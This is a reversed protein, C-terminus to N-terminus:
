AGVAPLTVCVRLGSADSQGLEINGGYASATEAVIALGLGTGPVAEDLRKGRKLAEERQGAPIGPGDDDVVLEIWRKGDEGLVPAITLEFASQAWKGANELLNGLIEEVDEKEGMFVLPEPSMNLTITKDPNLKRMVSVLKEAVPRIDTRFVVSERQAAIRARKLYHQIQYDMARAQEEVVKASPGTKAGAENVIVSLPTKLSHALNGVQTRAREVIRKNNDILANMEDVLPQIESPFRGELASADGSRIASLARRARDLPRLGVLLIAVNILVVGLGFAALLLGVRRAFSGVTAEFEDENSAVQLRAIRGGGVDIESELVRIRGGQPGDGTWRRRFQSDFPVESLTPRGFEGEGLSPSALAEGQVGDVPAIRWYWGSEPQLFRADGLNPSGQLVGADNVSAAGVLIFLQAEQLSARSRLADIRYLGILLSGLLAIAAVSWLSSILIVRVALSDLRLRM